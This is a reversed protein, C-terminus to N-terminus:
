KNRKNVRQMMLQASILVMPMGIGPNTHHGVYYLNNVKKSINNPRFIATQMLTHAMGLATWQYAHYRKEFDSVEFVRQYCIDDVFTEGIYSEVLKLIKDTYAQKQEPTITIGYPIPVLVFLNECWEPAVSADTKSPACVYISPDDPLVKDDFIQGFNAKRDVCFMLNHHIMNHIKKRVWLYIMFGSPAYLKKERYPAPYTQHASDLLQTEVRAQDANAIVIDANIQKGNAIIGTAHNGDTIINTVESDVHYTVGHKKGIAVLKKVIEYIGGQPYFVGMEFDVYSMINYLAPAQYPSTGLFVLPYMIIKQVKDTKFFRKVYDFLKSFVRLKMGQIMVERTFFDFVSDYNKYVFKMGIKYQYASKKLYDLFRIRVWPELTELTAAAQEPEAIIDVSSAFISTDIQNKWTKNTNKSHQNEFFVRYSPSLKTLDLHDEVKEGIAEFFQEFVDPMLYRSPGMDYTFTGEPTDASFISARGWLCENKEYLQVQYGQRALLIASALWGFGWGIIVAIKKHHSKQNHQKSQNM